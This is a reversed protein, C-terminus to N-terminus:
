AYVFTSVGIAVFCLNQNKASFTTAVEREGKIQARRIEM